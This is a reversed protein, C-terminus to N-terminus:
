SEINKANIVLKNRNKPTAPQHAGIQGQIVGFLNAQLGQVDFM